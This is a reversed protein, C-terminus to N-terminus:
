RQAGPTLGQPDTVRGTGPPTAAHFWLNASWKEGSEVPCGGHLAYPDLSLDPRMSYFLVAAGKRPYSRLGYGRQHDCAADMMDHPVPGGGARPLSTHGGEAVTSLYIFFTAFRNDKQHGYMQDSFYDDHAWYHQGRRYRLVQLQEHWKSGTINQVRSEIRRLIDDNMSLWAQNSTRDDTQSKEHNKRAEASLQVESRHMAGRALSVIHDAEEDTVIRPFYLIRPRLSATVFLRDNRAPYQFSQLGQPPPQLYEPPTKAPDVDNIDYGLDVDRGIRFRTRADSFPLPLGFFDDTDYRMSNPPWNGVVGLFKTTTGRITYRGNEAATVVGPAWGLERSKMQVKDGVRYTVPPPYDSDDVTAPTSPPRRQQQQQEQVQRAVTKLQALVEKREATLAQAQMEVRDQLGAFDHRSEMAKAEDVMLRKQVSDLQQQLAAVAAKLREVEGSPPPPHTHLTAAAKGATKAGSLLQQRVDPDTIGMDTLDTDQMEWVAELTFENEDFTHALAGLGLGHLWRRVRPDQPPSHRPRGRPAAVVAPRGPVMLAVATATAAM